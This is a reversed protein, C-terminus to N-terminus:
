ESRKKKRGMIELKKLLTKPKERPIRRSEYLKSQKFSSFKPEPEEVRRRKPNLISIGFDTNAGTKLSIYNANDEVIFSGSTTWVTQPPLRSPEPYDKQARKRKKGKGRVYEESSPMLPTVKFGIPRPTVPDEQFGRNRKLRDREPTVVEEAFGSVLDDKSSFIRLLGDRNEAQEDQKHKKGTKKNLTSIQAEKITPISALKAKEKVTNSNKGPALVENEKNEDTQVLITDSKIKPRKKSNENKFESSSVSVIEIKDKKSNDCKIVDSDNLTKQAKNGKGLKTTAPIDESVTPLHTTAVVQSQNEGFMMKKVEFATLLSKKKKPEPESPKSIEESKEKKKQKVEFVDVGKEKLKELKALKKEKKRQRKKELLEIGKEIAETLQQKKSKELFFSLLIKLCKLVSYYAITPTGETLERNYKKGFKQKKKKKKEEITGEETANELTAVNEKM